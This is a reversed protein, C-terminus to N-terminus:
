GAMEAGPDGRLHGQRCFRRRNPPLESQGPGLPLRGHAVILQNMILLHGADLAIVEQSEELTRELKLLVDKQRGPAIGYLIKGSYRVKWLGKQVQTLIPFPNLEEGVGELDYFQGESFGAVELERMEEPSLAKVAMQLNAITTAGGGRPDKRLCLLVTWDPPMTTNVHDIHLPLLGTGGFSNPDKDFSVRAEKWLPRTTITKMPRGILACIATAVVVPDPHKSEMACRMDVLAFGRSHPSSAVALRLKRGLDGIESDSTATQRVVQTFRAIADPGELEDESGAPLVDKLLSYVNPDLTFKTAQLLSATVSSAHSM